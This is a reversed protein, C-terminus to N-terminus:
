TGIGAQSWGPTFAFRECRPDGGARRTNNGTSFFDYHGHYDFMHCNDVIWQECEGMQPFGTRCNACLPFCVCIPGDNQLFRNDTGPGPTGRVLVVSPRSYPGQHLCLICCSRSSGVPAGRSHVGYYSPRKDVGVAVHSENKGSQYAVVRNHKRHTSFSGYYRTTRIDPDCRGM